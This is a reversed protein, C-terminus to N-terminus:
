EGCDDLPESNTEDDAAVLIAISSPQSEALKPQCEAETENSKAESKPKEENTLPVAQPARSPYSVVPNVLATPLSNSVATPAVRNSTMTALKTPPASFTKVPLEKSKRDEGRIETLTQASVGSPGAQKSVMGVSQSHSQMKVRSFSRSAALRVGSARQLDFYLNQEEDSRMLSCLTEFFCLSQSVKAQQTYAAMDRKMGVLADELGAWTVVQDAAPYV